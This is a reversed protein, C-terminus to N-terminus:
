RSTTQWKHPVAVEHRDLEQLFEAIKWACYDAELVNDAVLEECEPFAIEHDRKVFLVKYRVLKLTDNSLKKDM